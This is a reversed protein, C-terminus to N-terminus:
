AQGVASAPRATFASSFENPFRRLVEEEPVKLLSALSALKRQDRFFVEVQVQVDFVDGESGPVRRKANSIEDAASQRRGREKCVQWRREAGEGHLHHPRPLASGGRKTKVLDFIEFQAGVWSAPDAGLRSCCRAAERFAEESAETYADIMGLISKKCWRSLRLYFSEAYLRRIKRTTKGRM